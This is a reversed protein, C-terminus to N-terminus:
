KELKLGESIRYIEDEINNVHNFMNIIKFKQNINDAKEFIIKKDLKLLLQILNDICHANYIWGIDSNVIDKSGVNSSIIVPVGYSLAEMGVFGFTEKWLSPVVLVDINSFIEELDRTSYRGNLYVNDPVDLMLTDGYLHLEFQEKPLQKFANMLFFFGKYEKRPGLYGIRIKNSKKKKAIKKKISANTISIVKGSIGPLHKKFIEEALKSNFHFYDVMNFIKIYFDRLDVYERGRESDINSNFSTQISEESFSVKKLKKLKKLKKIYPYINTQTLRLKKTEFANKCCSACGLGSNYNDCNGKNNYLNITPCLGFYDHTTYIIRIGMDKACEFFEKHIGMLTHIHIVEPNISKLFNYYIKKETSKIFYSPEKIGNFLPLPLSNVLEFHNITRYKQFDKQRIKVSRNVLNINGPYLHFVEHSKSQEEMVEIAYKTLGGSRM